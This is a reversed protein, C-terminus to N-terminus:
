LTMVVYVFWGSSQVRGYEIATTTEVSLLFCERFREFGTVNVNVPSVGAIFYLVAFLLNISLYVVLIHIFFSPWSLAFFYHYLDHFLKRIDRAAHVNLKGDRKILAKVQHSKPHISHSM